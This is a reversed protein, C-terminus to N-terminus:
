NQPHINERVGVLDQKLAQVLEQHDKRLALDEVHKLVAKVGAAEACRGVAAPLVKGTGDVYALAKAGVLSDEAYISGESITNEKIIFIFNQGRHKM